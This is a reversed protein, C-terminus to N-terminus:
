KKIFKHMVANVDDALKLFYLGEPLNTVDISKDNVFGELVTRGTFDLISYSNFEIDTQVNIYDVVPNPAIVIKTNSLTEVDTTISYCISIRIHDIHSQITGGCTYDIGAFAVGFNNANIDAVTWTTGWLNNCGGYTTYADTSPWDVTSRYDSGVEVGGKLLQVENDEFIAGSGSVRKEVEVTVGTIMAGTPISFGFDTAILCNTQQDCCACHTASAYVNDSTLVENAPSYALNSSFSRNCAGNIATAPSNPGVSIQANIFNNFIVLLSILVIKKLM